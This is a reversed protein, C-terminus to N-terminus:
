DAALNLLVCGAFKVCDLKQRAEDKNSAQVVETYRYGMTRSDTAEEWIAVFYTM